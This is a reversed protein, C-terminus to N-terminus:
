HAVICVFNQTARCEWIDFRGNFQVEDDKRYKVKSKIVASREVVDIGSRDCLSKLQTRRFSAWCQAKIVKVLRNTLKEM